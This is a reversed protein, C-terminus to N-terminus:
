GEASDAAKAMRKGPSDKAQTVISRALKALDLDRALDAFKFQPTGSQAQGLL